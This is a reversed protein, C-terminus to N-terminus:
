LDILTAKDGRSLCGVRVDDAGVSIQVTRYYSIASPSSSVESANPDYRGTRRVM